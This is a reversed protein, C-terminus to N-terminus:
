LVEVKLTGLVIAGDGFVSLADATYPGNNQADQLLYLKSYSRQFVGLMYEKYERM